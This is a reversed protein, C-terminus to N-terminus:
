STIREVLVSQNVRGVPGSEAHLIGSSNAIGDAGVSTEAEIGVWRGTPAQHLHVTLETNLFTFQTPDLRAGVGNATDSVALLRELPSPEEGEVVACRLDTWALTPEGPTHSRRSIRWDLAGVFGRERWSAPFVQDLESTDGADPLSHRAAAEWVVDSTDQCALRWASGTACRRWQGDPMLADLEAGLLEIKRGPREIHTRVRVQSIPVPGLLEITVRALRTDPRPEHRDLARGLIAAVPGGHQIPGWPGETLPTSEFLESDGDRGLLRYLAADTM